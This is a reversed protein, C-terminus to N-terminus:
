QSHLSVQLPQKMRTFTFNFKGTGRGDVKFLLDECKGIIDVIEIETNDGAYYSNPIDLEIEGNESLFLM